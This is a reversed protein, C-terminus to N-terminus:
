FLFASLEEKKKLYRALDLEMDASEDEDDTAKLEQRLNTIM